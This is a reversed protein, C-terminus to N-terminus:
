LSVKIARSWTARTGLNNANQRVQGELGFGYVREDTKGPVLGYGVRVNGVQPHDDWRVQDLGGQGRTAAVMSSFRTNRTVGEGRAAVAGSVLGGLAILIAVVYVSWLQAKHYVYCNTTRERICPYNTEKGGLEIGTYQGPDNAWSVAIFQPDSLLSLIIEEYFGQVEERFNSIPLYNHRDILKTQTAKTESVYNPMSITGNIFYRMQNGLSHYAATRRYRRIDTPYVYNSEPIATTNDLTGDYLDLDGIYRTDIVKSMFKRERIIHSPLGGTYNFQVSYKTEYHECGFITPTYADYWGEATNNEPQPATPNEVAAYGIWLIPETRFAGLKEPYPPLQKPVGGSGCDIQPTAYDGRGAMAIYSYNGYPLLISTNFPAKADGLKKVTSDVGSALEQCKYGPGVFDIVFSCNWGTGCIETAANKRMIAQQGYASMWAVESFQQSTDTWYDFSSPDHPKLNPTRSTTNWISVSLEFLGDVKIPDRWYGKTEEHTFNLTHISPCMADERRTIPTVALTDSTLIVVLPTSWIYIALCIATKANKWMEWNLLATLDDAAAFLSDVAELTLIKHRVTMWARQRFAFIVTAAFCAKALFALATGYRLMRLQDRAEKGNLSYYFLHHGTAFLIGAIFFGYMNWAQDWNRHFWGTIRSRPRPYGGGPASYGYGPDINLTNEPPLDSLLATQSEHRSQFRGDRMQPSSQWADLPVGQRAEVFQPDTSSFYAPSGKGSFVFEPSPFDSEYYGPSSLPPSLDQASSPSGVPKRAGPQSSRREGPLTTLRDPDM